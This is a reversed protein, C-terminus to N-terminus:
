EGTLIYKEFDKALQMLLIIGLAVDGYEIASVLANSRVQEPTLHSGNDKPAHTITVRDIKEVEPKADEKIGPPEAGPAQNAQFSAKKRASCNLCYKRPFRPNEEYTFEVQCEACNITKTTM